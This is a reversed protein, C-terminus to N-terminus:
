RAKLPCENINRAYIFVYLVPFVNKRIFVISYIIDLSLNSPIEAGCSLSIM